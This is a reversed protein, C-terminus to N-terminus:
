LDGSAGASVQARGESPALPAAVARRACRHAAGALGIMLFAAGGAMPFSLADFTAFGALLGLVGGALSLALHREELGVARWRGLLSSAVATIFLGVLAALGVAGLELLTVLLQNDLIRYYQPIFTFLGRGFVPQDGYLRMAVGYDETRGQTSPDNLVNVFMYRITGLLGPILLRLGVAVFPAILLARWRWAPPWGLFLVLLGVGAVIIGSRSVTMAVALSVVVFPLWALASRSAHLARHLALPVVAGLVVGLEIPHIATASVRRLVSRAEVVGFEGSVTLGPIVIIRAVDIATFFQLVGVAAVVTAFRVVWTVVRELETRSRIGDSAVLAVGAWGALALLGRDAGSIMKSRIQDVTPPLLDYLLDTSGRVDPPAYWGSAMAAVYSCLCALVFVLVAVSVPYLRERLQGGLRACVWWVLGAMGWLSALTGASSLPGVVLRSPICLLLFAYVVLYHGADFGRLAHATAETLRRANWGM